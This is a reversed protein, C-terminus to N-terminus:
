ECPARERPSVAGINVSESTLKSIPAIRPILNLTRMRSGAIKEAKMIIRAPPMLEEAAGEKTARAVSRAAVQRCSPYRIPLAPRYAIAAM